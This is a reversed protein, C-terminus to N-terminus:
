FWDRRAFKSIDKLAGYNPQDMHSRVHGGFKKISTVKLCFPCPRSSPNKPPYDDINDFGFRLAKIARATASNQKNAESTNTLIAIHKKCLYKKLFQPDLINREKEWTNHKEDFGKWKILYEKKTSRIRDSLIQEAQFIEGGEDDIDGKRTPSEGTQPILAEAVVVAPTPVDQSKTLSSNPFQTPARKPDATDSVKLSITDSVKLPKTDSTKLHITDPTKHLIPDSTNSLKPDAIKLPKTDSAKRPITDSIKLMKTDSAKLSITDSVKLPKAAPTKRLITDLPNSPKPEAMKLPITNSAKRTITDSINLTKTDSTKLSITDSVKLPKADLTKRPIPDSAKLSITDSAKRFIPDSINSLKPDAIKLPITDSAKHPITDSIKLTKTDSTKCPTTDSVKLLIPVSSKRPIPDLIKLNIPDSIMLLRPSSEKLTKPDSPDLTEITKPDTNLLVPNLARGTKPDSSPLEEETERTVDVSSRSVDLSNALSAAPTGCHVGDDCDAKAKLADDREAVIGDTSKNELKSELESSVQPQEKRTVNGIKTYSQQLRGKLWALNRGITESKSKALLGAEFGDKDKPTAIPDKIAVPGIPKTSSAKDNQSNSRDKNINEHQNTHLMNGWTPEKISRESEKGFSSSTKAAKSPLVTDERDYSESHAKEPVKVTQKHSSSIKLADVIDEKQMHKEHSNSSNNHNIIVSPADNNMGIEFPIAQEPQVAAALVPSAKAVEFGGEVKQFIAHDLISSDEGSSSSLETMFLEKDRAVLTNYRLLQERTKELTLNVISKCYRSNGESPGKTLHIAENLPIWESSGLSMSFSMAEKQMEESDFDENELLENANRLHRVLAKGFPLNFGAIVGIRISEAGEKNPCKAIYAVLGGLLNQIPLINQGGRILDELSFKTDDRDWIESTLTGLDAGAFEDDASNQSNEDDVHMDVYEVHAPKSLIEIGDVETAETRHWERPRMFRRKEKQSSRIIVKSSQQEAFTDSEGESESGGHAHVQADEITEFGAQNVAELLAIYFDQWWAKGKERNENIRQIGVEEYFPFFPLVHSARIRGGASLNFFKVIYPTQAVGDFAISNAHVHVVMGPWYFDKGLALKSSTHTCRRKAWCIDGVALLASNSATLDSLVDYIPNERKKAPLKDLSYDLPHLSEEDSHAGYVEKEVADNPAVTVSVGWPNSRFGVRSDLGRELIDKECSSLKRQEIVFDDLGEIITVSSADSDYAKCTECFWDGEPVLDLPPDLCHQHFMKDCGDCLLIDLLKYNSGCVECCEHFIEEDNSDTSSGMDVDDRTHSILDESLRGGKAIDQVNTESDEKTDALNIWPYAIFRKKNQSTHSKYDQEKQEATIFEKLSKHISIEKAVKEEIQLGRKVVEDKINRRALEECEIEFHGFHKCINCQRFTIGAAPQYYFNIKRKLAVDESKKEDKFAWSSFVNISCENYRLTIPKFEQKPHDVTQPGLLEPAKRQFAAMIHNSLASIDRSAYSSRKYKSPFYNPFDDRSFLGLDASLAIEEFIHSLLPLQSPEQSQEFRARKRGIKSIQPHPIEKDKPENSLTNMDINPALFSSQVGSRKKLKHLEQEDLRMFLSLLLEMHWSKRTDHSEVNRQQQQQQEPLASIEFTGVFASETNTEGRPKQNHSSIEKEVSPKASSGSRQCLPDANTVEQPAASKSNCHQEEEPQQPISNVIATVM